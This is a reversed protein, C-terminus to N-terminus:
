IMREFFDCNRLGKQCREESATEGHDCYLYWDDFPDLEAQLHKCVKNEKM